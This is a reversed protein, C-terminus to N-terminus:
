EDNSSITKIDKIVIREEVISKITQLDDLSTIEFLDFAEQYGKMARNFYAVSIDKGVVIRIVDDILGNVYRSDRITKLYRSYLSNLYSKYSSIGIYDFVAKRTRKKRPLMTRSEPNSWDKVRQEISKEELKPALEQVVKDLGLVQVKAKLALKWIEGQSFDFGPYISSLDERVASDASIGDRNRENLLAELKRELESLFQIGNVNTNDVLERLIGVHFSGDYLRYVVPETDIPFSVAGDASELRVKDAGTSIFDNDEYGEDDGFINYSTLGEGHEGQKRPTWQLVKRRYGSDLVHNSHKIRNGESVFLLNKFLIEPIIEILQQGPNIIYPDYSNPYSSPFSKCQLFRMVVIRGEPVNIYGKKPILEYPTRFTVQKDPFLSRIETKIREPTSAEVVLAFKEEAGCFSYIKPIIINNWLTRLYEFIAVTNDPEFDPDLSQLYQYFAEECEKTACTSIINCLVRQRRDFGEIMSVVEPFYVDFDDGCEIRFRNDSYNLGATKQVAEKITYCIFDEESNTSGVYVNSFHAKEEVLTRLSYTKDSIKFVFLNQINYGMQRLKSLVESSNFSRYRPSNVYIIFANGIAPNDKRVFGKKLASKVSQKVYEVDKDTIVNMSKHLSFGENIFRSLLSTRKAPLLSKDCVLINVPNDAFLSDGNESELIRYALNNFAKRADGLSGYNKGNPKLLETAKKFEKYEETHNGPIEFPHLHENKIVVKYQSTLVGFRITIYNALISEFEPVIQPLYLVPASQKTIDSLYYQFANEITELVPRAQEIVQRDKVSLGFQMLEIISNLVPLRSYQSSDNM